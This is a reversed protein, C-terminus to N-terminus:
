AAEQELVRIDRRPAKVAGSPLLAVDARTETSCPLTVTFSTGAGEASEVEISGGHAQVVSKVIALGLGTGEARTSYFPEFLRPLASKAIGSGNDSVQLRIRASNAMAAVRVRGGQATAQAANELLSILAVGLGRRDGHLVAGATHDECLFCIGRASMLPEVVQAAESLLASVDVAQGLPQEGRVFRLMDRTMRELSRLRAQVKENLAAREAAALDARDLQSAYLMATSLPTRLQHAMRAAMEGMASLREQRAQEARAAHAETIDHLLVLREGSADIARDQLDIRRPAKSRTVWECKTGSPELAAKLDSWTRGVLGAGLIAAAAANAERITGDAGVLLVGAPMATLLAQAYTEKM